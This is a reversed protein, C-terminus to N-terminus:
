DFDQPQGEPWGTLIWIPWVTARLLALSLTAPTQLNVFAVIVFCIMYLGLLTLYLWTM